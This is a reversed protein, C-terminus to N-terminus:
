YHLQKLEHVVQNSLIASPQNSLFSDLKTKGNDLLDELISILTDKRFSQLKNKLIVYNMAHTAETQCGNEVFLKAACPDSVKAAAKEEIAAGYADSHHGNQGVVIFQTKEADSEAELTDPEADSKAGAGVEVRM